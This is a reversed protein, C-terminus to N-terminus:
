SKLSSLEHNEPAVYVFAFVAIKENESAQDGIAFVPKVKFVLPKIQNSGLIEFELFRLTFLYRSKMRSIATGPNSFELAPTCWFLNFEHFGQELNEIFIIKVLM